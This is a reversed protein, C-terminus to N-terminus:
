TSIDNKHTFDFIPIYACVGNEEYLITGANVRLTGIVVAASSM